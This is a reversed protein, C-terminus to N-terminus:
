FIHLERVDNLEGNLIKMDDDTLPNDVCEDIHEAIYSLQEFNGPPVIAHVGKALTYKIAAKALTDNDYITKCWSKPFRKNENEGTWLRHALAKIALIGMNRYKCINILRDGFGKDINLAWNVPFLVTAFDYYSLAQIAIDENHASIGINKIYGEQKARILVEMAGNKSFAKDIDEQNSLGHLQYVDFYDTKLVKLSNYLEDKIGSDRVTSKCALYTNKRYPALAPSLMEQANGYSPAVDFYNVGKDIAYSVYRSCDESTEGGVIIGGFIVTSVEIGTEGLISKKM